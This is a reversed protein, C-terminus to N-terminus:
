WTKSRAPRDDGPSQAVPGRHGPRRPMRRDRRHGADAPRAERRKAPRAAAANAPRDHSTERDARAMEALNVREYGPIVPEVFVRRRESTISSTSWSTRRLVVDLVLQDKKWELKVSEPLYCSQFPARNRNRWTSTRTTPSSRGPGAPDAAASRGRYIRHEKIRRTHNSVIMMRTILKAAARPRRFSWPPRAEPDDTTEFRSRAAEEPTIPKLGLAEIIWDPQYTVALASSELDDYNCWYISRDEDSQVWFWFEEDNSGIDAKTQDMPSSLELKFNRPREM